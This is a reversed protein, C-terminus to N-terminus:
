SWEVRRVGAWVLQQLRRGKGGALKASAPGLAGKPFQTINVTHVKGRLKLYIRLTFFFM